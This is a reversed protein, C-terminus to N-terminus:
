DTHCQSVQHQRPKANITTQLSVGLLLTKSAELDLTWPRFLGKFNKDFSYCRTRTPISQLIISKLNWLTFLTPLRAHFAQKFTVQLDHKFTSCASFLAFSLLTASTNGPTASFLTASLLMASLLTASPLTASVQTALLLKASLLTASPLLASLLTALLLM